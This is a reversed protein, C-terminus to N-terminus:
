RIPVYRRSSSSVFPLRKRLQRVRGYQAVSHCSHRQRFLNQSAGGALGTYLGAVIYPDFGVNEHSMIDTPRTRDTNELTLEALCGLNPVAVADNYNGVM